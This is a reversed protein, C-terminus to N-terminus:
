AGWGYRDHTELEHWFNVEPEGQAGAADFLPGIENMSEQFFTQFSEANPWEDLVMVGGKGDGYFRHAILGHGEAQGLIGKMTERNASAWAELKDADAKIHITVMVSM